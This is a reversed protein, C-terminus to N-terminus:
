VLTGSISARSLPTASTVGATHNVAAAVPVTVSFVSGGSRNADLLIGHGLVHALRQVISLGLGLGRAIRAGADLRRFEKFIEGREKVPIGVGTDYVALRLAGGRRRAGVLVRGSPAYKVANSILNQLLRRLMIRDSEVPLSCSVFTL